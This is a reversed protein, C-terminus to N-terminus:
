EYKFWSTPTNANTGAPTDIWVNVLGTVSRAPVVVTIQTDSDVTFSPATLAPGFRIGTAGTFGSGTIVINYGGAISGHNPTVRTVVPGAYTFTSGASPDSTGNLGSVTVTVAGPAHPPAIATITTANVKTFSASTSGFKVSTIVSLRSGTITVTTGGSTPGSAPSLSSVIPRGNYTYYAGYGSPNTGLPTTVYVTVVTAEITPAPPAVATIKGDSDVTFSTADTAGFRVSTAATFGLGTIVVTNGGNNPGWTPSVGNVYPPPQTTYTFRSPDLSPSPGAASQLTVDVQGVAHAPTVARIVNPSVLSWSSAPTSGFLVGTANALDNGSIDVTKGGIESGSTPSMGTIVPVGPAVYTYVDSSTVLSSGYPGDIVIDVQGLAHSPAVALINGYSDYSFSAAPVSGFLVATADRLSVGTITVTNGGTTPGARPSITQVWPRAVYTYWANSVNPSTGMANTVYVNVTGTFGGASAPAVATIQTDSDVVFSPSTNDQGFRVQTTGTFGSGTIVVTNGGALPGKKPALSTVSPPPATTYTFSVNITSPGLDSTVSVTAAGSAHAPTIAHIKGDAASYSWAAAAIGDFQLGTARDLGSGTVQVATGGASSGTNPTISSLVPPGDFTFPANTPSPGADTTVTVWQTGFAPVAPTIATVQTPSDVTFSAAPLQYGFSVGITGDLDTGTFVVATGGAIPGHNPSVSSVTPLKKTLYTLTAPASTGGVADVTVSATGAAHAPATFTIPMPDTDPNYGFSSVPSGDVKVSYPYGNVNAVSLTIQPGGQYSSTSPSVSLIQPPAYYRYWSSSLNANSGSPTDVFVNVTTKPNPTVAPAPVVVTLQTDSNVVFSSAPTSSGFRVGTAGTFGSGAIVVTNGGAAPGKNPTLSTVTPVTAAAVPELGHFGNSTLMTMPAAILVLAIVQAVVRRRAM